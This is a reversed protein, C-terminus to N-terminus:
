RRLRWAIAVPAGVYLGANLAIVLAGLAAVGLESGPEAASMISLSALMPAIVARVAARLEPSEREWDAVTPSFSYYVANFASMFASGAGTGLLTSDRIERLAQVEAAMETGYAATAILCGGGPRETEMATGPEPAMVDEGEVMAGEGDGTMAMEEGGEAMAMGPNAAAEMLAAEALSLQAMVREITQPVDPSNRRVESILTENLTTEISQRLLPQGAADLDDEVFEFENLYAERVLEGAQLSNGDMYEARAVDLLLRINDIRAASGEFGAALQEASRMATPDAGGMMDTMEGQATAEGPVFAAALEGSLSLAMETSEAPDNRNDYVSYFANFADDLRSERDPPHQTLTPGRFLDMHAVDLLAYADQLEAVLEVNGDVIASDYEDASIRVLEAAIASALAADDASGAGITARQAVEVAQRAANLEADVEGASMAGAEVREQLAALSARLAENATPDAAAVATEVRPYAEGIAHMAHLPALAADAMFSDSAFPGPSAGLNVALADLHGRMEYFAVGYAVRDPWSLQAHAAPVAAALVTVALLAALRTRKL